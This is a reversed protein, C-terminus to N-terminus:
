TEIPYQSKSLIFVLNSLLFFLFKNFIRSYNSNMHFTITYISTNYFTVSIKRIVNQIVGVLQNYILYFDM